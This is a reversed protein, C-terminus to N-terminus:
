GDNLEAFNGFRQDVNVTLMGVLRKQAAVCLAREEIRV